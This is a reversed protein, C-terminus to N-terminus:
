SAIRLYCKLKVGMRGPNSERNSSTDTLEGLQGLKLEQNLNLM